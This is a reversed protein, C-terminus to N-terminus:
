KKLQTNEFHRSYPRGKAFERGYRFEQGQALEKASYGPRITGGSAQKAFEERNKFFARIEDPTMRDLKAKTKAMSSPLRSGAEDMNESLEDGYELSEDVMDGLAGIVAEPQAMTHISVSSFDAESPQVDAAIGANKLVTKVAAADNSSTPNERDFDGALRIDFHRAESQGQYGSTEAMESDMDEEEDEDEIEKPDPNEVDTDVVVEDLTKDEKEQTVKEKEKIVEQELKEADAIIEKTEETKVLINSSEENYIAENDSISNYLEVLAAEDCSQIYEQMDKQVVDRFAKADYTQEEKQEAKLEALKAELEAITELRNQKKKAEKITKKPAKKDSEEIAKTIDSKESTISEILKEAKPSIKTPEKFEKIGALKAIDALTIQRDDLVRPEQRAAELLAQREQEPTTNSMENLRKVLDAFGDNYTKRAM